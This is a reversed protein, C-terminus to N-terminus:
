RRSEALAYVAKECFNVLIVGGLAVRRSRLQTVLEWNKAERAQDLRKELGTKKPEVHGYRAAVDPPLSALIRHFTRNSAHRMQLDSEQVLPDDHRGRRSERRIGSGPQCRARAPTSCWSWLCVKAVLPGV